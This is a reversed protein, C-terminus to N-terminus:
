HSLSHVHVSQINSIFWHYALKSCSPSLIKFFPFCCSRFHSFRFTSFLHPLRDADLMSAGRFVDPHGQGPSGGPMPIKKLM